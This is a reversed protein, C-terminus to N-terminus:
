GGLQHRDAGRLVAGRGEKPMILRIEIAANM